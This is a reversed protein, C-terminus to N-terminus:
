ELRKRMLKHYDRGLAYRSIFALKPNALVRAIRPHPPLYNMRVSIIRLTNPILEAPRSRKTGHQEMYRMNGHYNKALWQQLRQEALTLDTDTIGIQQFGLKLGYQKIKQTLNTLNPTSKNSNM